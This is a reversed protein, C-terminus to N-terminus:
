QGGKRRKLEKCNVIADECPLAELQDEPQPRATLPEHRAGM